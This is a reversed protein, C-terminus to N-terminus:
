ERVAHAQAPRMTQGRLRHLERIAYGLLVVGAGAGTVASPTLGLPGAILVTTAAVAVLLVGLVVLSRQRLVVALPAFHVGVVLCIWVSMYEEHGVAAFVAAGAGAVGFEVGLIVLYRRMAGPADLASDGRRRRWASVAGVAAFVLSAMAGVILFPRWWAPPNEQAWGFWSSAFFALILAAVANDRPYRVAGPQAPSTM